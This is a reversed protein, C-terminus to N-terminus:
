LYYSSICELHILLPFGGGPDKLVMSSFRVKLKDLWYDKSVFALDHNGLVHVAPIEGQPPSIWSLPL